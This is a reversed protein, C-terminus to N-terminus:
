YEAINCHSFNRTGSTGSDAINLRCASKPLAITFSSVRWQAARIINALASAQATGSIKGKIDFGLNQHLCNRAIAPVDSVLIDSAEQYLDDRDDISKLVGDAFAFLLNRSLCAETLTWLQRMWASALIKMATNSYKAGASMQKLGNDIVITFKADTYIKRIQRVAKRRQYKFQQGVPLALTDIWFLLRESKSGKLNQNQLLRNFLRLQCAFLKNAKSNGYGHSWVHSITTYRMFPKQPVVDIFWRDSTNQKYELLPILGDDICKILKETDPGIEKCNEISCEPSHKTEYSRPRDSSLAICKENTCESHDDIRQDESNASYASLM